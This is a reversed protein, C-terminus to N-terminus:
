KVILFLLYNFVSLCWNGLNNLALQCAPQAVKRWLKTVLRSVSQPRREFAFPMETKTCQTQSGLEWTLKTTARPVVGEMRGLGRHICLNQKMPGASNKHIWSVGLSHNLINWCSFDPCQAERAWSSFCVAMLWTGRSDTRQSQIFSFSACLKWMLPPSGPFSHLLYPGLDGKCGRGCCSEMGGSGLSSLSSQFFHLPAPLISTM